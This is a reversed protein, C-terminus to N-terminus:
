SQSGYFQNIKEAVDRFGIDSQYIEKYQEIAKGTNGSKEYAQGLEYIIEKKLENMVPTEHKASMLQAIALDSMGKALMARGTLLIARVRVQPNRQARQLEGIAEDFRGDNFFLQGLRFRAHYDNPYHEVLKQSSALQFDHLAKKADAVAQQAASDEPNAALATEKAELDKAIVSERLDSELRELTPDGRGNPSRRAEQACAIAEAFDGLQRYCEILRRFLNIDDPTSALTVKLRDVEKHLTEDDKKARSAEELEQAQAQNALNDRFSEATEYSRQTKAVSGKRILNGVREDTSGDRLLVDGIKVADESRGAELYAEGLALAIEVDELDFKRANELALIATQVMNLLLAADGLLKYGAADNPNAAIMKDATAIAAVPDKKKLQGAGKMQFPARTMSAVFRTLGSTQKQAGVKQRGEFLLKRFEYNGPMRNVVDAALEIAYSPNKTLNKRANDLQKRLRPDMEELSIETYKPEATTMMEVFVLVQVIEDCPTLLNLVWLGVKELAALALNRFFSARLM